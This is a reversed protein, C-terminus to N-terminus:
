YMTRAYITETAACKRKYKEKDTLVLHRWVRLALRRAADTSLISFHLMLWRLQSLLLAGDTGIFMFLVGHM